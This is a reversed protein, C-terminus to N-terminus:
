YEGWLIEKMFNLIETSDQAPEKIKEYFAGILYGCNGATWGPEVPMGIPNPTNEDAFAFESYIETWSGDPGQINILWKMYALLALHYDPNPTRAYLNLLALVFYTNDPPAARGVYGVWAGGGDNCQFGGAGPKKGPYNIMYQSTLAYRACENAFSLYKEEGTIDYISVMGNIVCGYAAIEIGQVDVLFGGICKPDYKALMLDAWKRSYNHFKSEGTVKYLFAALRISEGLAATSRWNPPVEEAVSYYSGSYENPRGTDGDVYVPLGRVDDEYRLLFDFYLKVGELYKEEGTYLYAYLIQNSIVSGHVIWHRNRGNHDLGRNTRLNWNDWFAGYCASSVNRNQFVDIAMNAIALAKNIWDTKCEKIGFYLLPQIMLAGYSPGFGLGYVDSGKFNLLLCGDSSPESMNPYYKFFSLMYAFARDRVKTANTEMLPWSSIWEYSWNRWKKILSWMYDIEDCLFLRVGSRATENALFSSKSNYICFGYREGYNGRRIRTTLLVTNDGFKCIGLYKPTGVREHWFVTPIGVGDGEIDTWIFKVDESVEIAPYCRLEAKSVPKDPRGEFELTFFRIEGAYFEVYVNTTWTINGIVRVDSFKILIRSQNRFVVFYSSPAFFNHTGHQIIDIWTKGPDICNRGEIYSLKNWFWGHTGNKVWEICISRNALYLRDTKEVFVLDSTLEFLSFLVIISSFTVIFVTFYVLGNSLAKRNM